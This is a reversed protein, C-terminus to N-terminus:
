KTRRGLARVRMLVRTLEVRWEWLAYSLAAAILIALAILGASNGTQGEVPEPAYDASPIKAVNRCRNTEPNREQNEKCPALTAAALVSTRCRNTLPNREQNEACPVLSAIDGGLSRCRNTVESRYQGDKCPTLTSGITVILRCRNTEPHRYQNAACPALGSVGEEIREPPLSPLNDAGMTPQDSYQWLGAYLQWVTGEYPDSYAAADDILQGDASVLAVHASTNVLM